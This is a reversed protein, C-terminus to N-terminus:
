SCVRFPSRILLNPTRTGGLASKLNSLLAVATCVGSPKFPEVHQDTTKSKQPNRELLRYGSSCSAVLRVVRALTRPLDFDM